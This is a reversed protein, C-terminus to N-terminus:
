IHFLSFILFDFDMDNLNELRGGDLAMDRTTSATAGCLGHLGCEPSTPLDGGFEAEPPRGGCTGPLLTHRHELRPM